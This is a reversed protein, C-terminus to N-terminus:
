RGKNAFLTKDVFILKRQMDKLQAEWKKFEKDEDEKFESIRSLSDDGEKLTNQMISVENIMEQYQELYVFIPKRLTLEDREDLEERQEDVAKKEAVELPSLETGIEKFEPIEDASPLEPLEEKGPAAPIIIERSVDEKRKEKVKFFDKFRM